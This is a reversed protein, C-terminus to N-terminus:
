QWRHSFVRLAGGNAGTGSSANGTVPLELTTEGSATGAAAPAATHQSAAFCTGSQAAAYAAIEDCERSRGIAPITTMVKLPTTPPTLLRTAPACCLPGEVPRTALRAGM